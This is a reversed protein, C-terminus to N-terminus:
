SRLMLDVVSIRTVRPVFRDLAMDMSYSWLRLQTVEEALTYYILARFISQWWDERQANGLSASRDTRLSPFRRDATRFRDHTRTPVYSERYPQEAKHIAELKRM